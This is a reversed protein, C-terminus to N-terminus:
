EGTSLILLHKRPSFLCCASLLFHENSTRNCQLNRHRPTQRIHNANETSNFAQTCIRWLPLRRFTARLKETMCCKFLISQGRFLSCTSKYNMSFRNDFYKVINLLYLGFHYWQLGIRENVAIAFISIQLLINRFADHYYNLAFMSYKKFKRESNMMTQIQDKKLDAAKLPGVLNNVFGNLENNNSLIKPDYTINRNSSINMSIIQLSSLQVESEILKDSNDISDDSDNREIDQKSQVNSLLRDGKGDCNCRKSFFGYHKTGDFGSQKAHSFADNRSNTATEWKSDLKPCLFKLTDDIPFNLRIEKRDLSGVIRTEQDEQESKISNNHQRVSFFDRWSVRYRLYRKSIGKRRKWWLNKRCYRGLRSCM